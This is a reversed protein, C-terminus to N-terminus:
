YLCVKILVLSKKFLHDMGIFRDSEELLLMCSLAGLQNVTMDVGINNVICHAVKTRANIFEVNRINFDVFRSTGEDKRGIEDCLSNFIQQLIKMEDKAQCVHPCLVVVDLDSDPLFSRLASSGCGTVVSEKLQSTLLSNIFLVVNDRRSNADLIPALYQLLLNVEEEIGRQDVAIM